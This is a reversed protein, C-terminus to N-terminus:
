ITFNGIKIRKINLALAPIGIKKGIENALSRMYTGSTCTVKIKLIHFLIPNKYKAMAFYWSKMIEDQRFDGKVLYISDIVFKELDNKSIEREGLVEINKIEVDKSTIEEDLLEGDKAKQFYKSSYAPYKQSFKGIFFKIMNGFEGNKSERSLLFPSNSQEIIKGLVDYSDTSFGFLVDMEYEKDLNLYDTKHIIDSGTIALLLGEAMPDLRGAYTMKEDYGSNDGKFRNMCELPTEGRKKYLELIAM